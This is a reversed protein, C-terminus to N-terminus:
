LREGAGPKLFTPCGFVFRVLDEGILVRTKISNLWNLLCSRGRSASLM